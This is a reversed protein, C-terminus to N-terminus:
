VETVLVGNVCLGRFIADDTIIDDEDSSELKIGKTQEM